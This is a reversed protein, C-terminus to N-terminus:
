KWFWNYLIQRIIDFMMSPRIALPAMTYFMSSIENMRFIEPEAGPPKVFFYEWIKFKM